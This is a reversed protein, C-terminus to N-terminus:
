VHSHTIEPVHILEKGFEREHTVRGVASIGVVVIVIRVPLIFDVPASKHCFIQKSYFTTISDGFVVQRQAVRFLISYQFTSLLVAIM